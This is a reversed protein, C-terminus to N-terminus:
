EIPLVLGDSATLVRCEPAKEAALEGIARALELEGMEIPGKGFHSFVALPVGFKALWGLQARVTTHGM